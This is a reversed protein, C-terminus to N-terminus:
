KAEKMGKRKEALLSELRSTLSGWEAADRGYEESGRSYSIAHALNSVRMSRVKEIERELQRIEELRERTFEAGKSWLETISDADVARYLDNNTFFIHRGIGRDFHMATNEWHQEVFERDTDAM